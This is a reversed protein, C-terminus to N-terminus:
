ATLRDLIRRLFGRSDGHASATPPPEPAPVAYVRAHDTIEDVREILGIARAASVLSFVYRQPVRLRAAIELPTLAEKTLLAAIRMAEPTEIVRNFDPWHLMRISTNFLTSRRLRGRATWLAVRWLAIDDAIGAPLNKFDADTALTVHVLGHEIEKGCVAHLLVDGLATAVEAGLPTPKTVIPKPLGHIVHAHGTRRTAVLAHELAGQLYRRPEYVVAALASPNRPDVDAANGCNHQVFDPDMLRAAARTAARPGTTHPSTIPVFNSDAHAAHHLSAAGGPAVGSVHAETPPTRRRAGPFTDDEPHNAGAMQALGIGDAQKLANLRIVSPTEMATRNQPAGHKASAARLHAVNPQTKLVRAKIGDVARRLTAVDVPKRLFQARERAQEHVSLVLTPLTPYRARYEQWTREPQPTDIDVIGLDPLNGRTLECDHWGHSRFLAMFKLTTRDNMGHLVIRLARIKNSDDSM